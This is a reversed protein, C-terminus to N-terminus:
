CVAKTHPIGTDQAAAEQCNDCLPPQTYHSLTPTTVTTVMDESGALGTQFGTVLFIGPSKLATLAGALQTSLQPLPWTEPTIGRLACGSNQSRVWGPKSARM